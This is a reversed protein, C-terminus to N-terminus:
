ERREDRGKQWRRKGEGKVVRQRKAMGKEYKGQQRQVKKGEGGCVCRQRSSMKSEWQMGEQTIITTVTTAPPCASPPPSARPSAPSPVTVVM